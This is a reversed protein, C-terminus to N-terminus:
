NLELGSTEILIFWSPALNHFLNVASFIPRETAITSSPYTYENGVTWDSILPPLDEIVPFKVTLSAFSRAFIKFDPFNGAGALIISSAITPGESPSSAISAPKFDNMNANIM